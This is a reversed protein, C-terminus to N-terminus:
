RRRCHDSRCDALSGGPASGLAPKGLAPPHPDRQRGTGAGIPVIHQEVLVDPLRAMGRSPASRMRAANSSGLLESPSVGVHGHQPQM